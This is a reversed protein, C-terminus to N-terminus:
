YENEFRQYQTLIAKEFEQWSSVQNLKRHNWYWDLAPGELLHHFSRLIDNDSCGYDKQLENVRFIFEQANM